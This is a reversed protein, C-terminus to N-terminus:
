LVLRERTVGSMQETAALGVTVSDIVHNEDVGVSGRTVRVTDEPELAPNPVLGFSVTSAAGIEQALIADAADQAQADSYIDPSSYFRPCKGFPGYYYTPSLPNDDTAVGRYVATETSEGTAIVRNFANTRSWQRAATLLVGDSGETLNAVVGQEAYRRLTLVGDGDFFLSMGLAVALGQCFEWPDDGPQATINRGISISSVSDFGDMFPCEVWVAEVIERIGTTFPTGSALQFVDEFKAKSIRDARDLAAVRTGAGAGDDTIDADEIGFWGLGVTETSGDPLYLGRRLEIENGFPALRDSSDTPVWDTGEVRIDCRGRVAATADLTVSGETVPIDDWTGDARHVRAVTAVRHSGSVAALFEASADRM